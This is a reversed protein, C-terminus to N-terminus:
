PDMARAVRFGIKQSRTDVTEWARAAARLDQPKDDYSGGRTVREGCDGDLRAAGGAPPPGPNASWCDEVWQRVNGLMNVLGFPNPAGEDAAIARRRALGKPSGAYAYRADYNALEPTIAGFWFPQNPCATTTCGRAAYEWETESLLRYPKGTKRALWDVYAKADKWSVFIVPQRGRGWNFDGPRWSNCGGEAVCADWEDFTVDYRGVAFPAPIVAESPAPEQPLRATEQSPSGILAAGRPAVVMEPCAECDKFSRADFTKKEARLTNATSPACPALSATVIAKSAAVPAPAAEAVPPTPAPKVPPQSNGGAPNAPAVVAVSQSPAVAPAAPPPTVVIPAAADAVPEAKPPETPAAVIAPAPASPQVAPSPTVPAPEPKPAAVAIPLTPAPKAAPAESVVASAPQSAPAAPAPTAVVPAIVSSQVATPQSDPLAAPSSAPRAAPAVGVALSAQQVPPAAAAPTAVIPAPASSQVVPAPAAPVITAAPSPASAPKVAPADSAAHVAPKSQDAAFGGDPVPRMWFFVGGALIVLAAVGVAILLWSNRAPAPETVPTPATRPLPIPPPPPAIAEPAALAQISAIRDILRKLAQDWDVFMDIWQRTALEYRFAASPTIDEVRVPIVTVRHQSALAIEKKIEESNNANTSFVLVMVKAREIAEVIADGFNDGPGVDRGSIWCTMGRREIADCIDRAIKVDRSSHSIFVPGAM